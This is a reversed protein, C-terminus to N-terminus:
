KYEENRKKLMNTGKSLVQLLESRYFIFNLLLIISTSVFVLKIGEVIFDIFSNIEINSIQKCILLSIVFFLVNLFLLKLTPLISNYVYDVSIQKILIVIRFVYAILWGLLVGEIQYINVLYLSLSLSIIAEIIAANRTKKFLGASNLISMYPLRMNHLLGIIIFLLAMHPRIYNADSIGFTYLKIFPIYLISLVVYVINVITYFLWEYLHFNKMLIKKDKEAIIDGFISQFGNMFVSLLMIVMNHILLYITFISVEKLGLFVTIIIIPTNVIVLNVIQHILVDLRSHIINDDTASNYDVWPYKKELYKKLYIFRSVFIIAVILQLLVPNMKFSILIVTVVINVMVGVAQALYIVYGKQSATLFVRYKGILFFESIGGVGLVLIMSFATGWGVQNSVTFPYVLSLLLILILFLKGSKEYQVKAASLIRNVNSHNREKIPTYLMAISAYGIGAEVLSLYEIFQRGSSILGNTVSGYNTIFLRPLILGSIATVISLILSGALNYMANRTRM